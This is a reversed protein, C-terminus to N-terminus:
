GKIPVLMDIYTIFDPKDPDYIYGQESTTNKSLILSGDPIEVINGEKLDEIEIVKYEYKMHLNDGQFLPFSYLERRM